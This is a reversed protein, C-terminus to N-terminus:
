NNWPQSTISATFGSHIWHKQQRASIHKKNYHRARFVDQPIQSPVVQILSATQKSQYTKTPLIPKRMLTKEQHRTILSSHCVNAYTKLQTILHFKWVIFVQLDNFSDTYPLFWVILSMVLKSIESSLPILRISCINSTSFNNTCWNQTNLKHYIVDLKHSNTHTQQQELHWTLIDPSIINDKGAPMTATRALLGFGACSDNRIRLVWRRSLM